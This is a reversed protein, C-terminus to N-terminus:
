KRFRQTITSLVQKVGTKLHALGDRSALRRHFWSHCSQCLVTLDSPKENGRREYTRHHVNLNEASYCLQCRHGVREIAQERRALWEPTFLYDEYPMTALDQIRKEDQM